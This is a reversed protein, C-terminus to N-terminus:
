KDNQYCIRDYVDIVKRVDFKQLALKHSYQAMARKQEESLSIFHSMVNALTKSDRPPILFGNKGEDVMERCGPIDSTIIPRGMACAEMLSRSMGEMYSPLVIVVNKQGVYKPVDNTVGLYEFVGSQCDAEFIEKPVGFPRNYATPGLWQFHTHDDKPMQTLADVFEQYGKDYLVRSIILFTVGCTFDAESVPYLDLNVGEGGELLILKDQTTLHYALITDYNSQNLVLVNQAKKLGFRYWCRLLKKLLSNGEFAYGLGAIMSVVPIHLLRAALGGYINPKITYTIIKDPHEKRFIKVLAIFLQLDKLPNLGNAQMPVFIIRVNSIDTQGIKDWDSEPQPCVLVVEHGQKVFHRIVDIRFGLLGGLRNDCFLLKM